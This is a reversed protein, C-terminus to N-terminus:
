HHHGNLVDKYAKRYYKFLAGTCRDLHEADTEALDRELNQFQPCQVSSPVAIQRARPPDCMCM